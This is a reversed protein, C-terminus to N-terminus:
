AKNQPIGLRKLKKYLSAPFIGLLDSARAKNWGTRELARLITRKEVDQLDLSDDAPETVSASASSLPPPLDDLELQVGGSLVVAREVCNELERVNGPWDHGKLAAMADDSLGTANKRHKSAYQAVFHLAIAEIDGPRERLPPVDISVVNLRYYLDKRLRGEDVAARPDRNTAAAIRVDPHIPEDGGVREFPEGQLVRLLKAQVGANMESVEDLFLTGGDAREFRGARRRDAGTFAGKEHGFLESELLTESIAACNVKVLPGSARPSGYHLADAVLEKGTGTEGTVLVTSDTSAVTKILARLQAARASQGIIRGLGHERDLTDRLKTREELVLAHEIAKQVEVLLADVSLPKQLYHFAGLRMAEVATDVSAHATLVLVPCDASWTRVSEVVTLGSAGPLRLDTMVLAPRMKELRAIGEEATSVGEVVYGEDELAGLLQGLVVADDEVILIKTKASGLNTV